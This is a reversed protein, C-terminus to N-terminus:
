VGGSAENKSVIWHNIVTAVLLIIFMAWYGIVLMNIVNVADQPLDLGSAITTIFYLAIGLVVGISSGILIATLSGFASGASM